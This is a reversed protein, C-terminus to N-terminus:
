EGKYGYYNTGTYYLEGASSKAAKKKKAKGTKKAETGQKLELATTYGNGLTHTSKTITYKGSFVGFGSLSINVGARFRLDGMLSLNGTIEKKNAEYLKKEALEKADGSSEAYVKLELVRETGEANEDEAEGEFTQAKDAHHYTVKAKRYTGAAKTSFKWSILKKDDASIEAVASKSDYTDEDYIILKGDNVKVALGYGECLSTIFVIDSENVQERRELTFDEADFYLGLGCGNAIDSAIRKLTVNEWARNHKEDKLKTSVATSVAKITITRPPSSYDIQDVEYVGCPLSQTTTDNVVISCTVKDGKAPFWDTLWLGARDQLTFAIDDATGGSNDTYTFQTLYPAIDKTIDKNRYTIRVETNRSQM